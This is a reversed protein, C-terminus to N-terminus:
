SRTLPRISQPPQRLLESEGAPQERGVPDGRTVSWGHRVRALFLAAACSVAFFALFVLLAVQIGIGDNIESGRAEGLQVVHIRQSPPIQQSAGVAELYDRLGDVAGDALHEAASPTPAQAYVDLISVTPNVQIDIRYQDTSAFIDSVHKDNSPQAIARPEERTVPATTEIADAPVGARRAIYSRVPDSTMVNGILLARPTLLSQSTGTDLLASKPTDILVRTSAAAMRLERPSVSPPLLGVKAVSWLAALLAILFCLAVAKRLRWLERLHIGFQMEGIM